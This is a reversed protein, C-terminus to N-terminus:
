EAAIADILDTAKRLTVRRKHYVELYNDGPCLNIVRAAPVRALLDCICDVKTDKLETSDVIIATSAEARVREEVDPEDLGIGLIQFGSHNKLFAEIAQTILSGAHLVIVTTAGTVEIQVETGVDTTNLM